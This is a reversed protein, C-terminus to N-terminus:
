RGLLGGLCCPKGRKTTEPIEAQIPPLGDKPYEPTWEAAPLYRDSIDFHDDYLVDRPYVRNGKIIKPNMVSVHALGAIALESCMYQRRNTDTKAFIQERLGSRCRCPTGQLLLRYFPYRKGCQKMGWETLQESQEPTLPCRLRRIYINGHFQGKFQNFRPLADMLFVYPGVTTGDDPGSELVAAGGDPLDVMLGAHDPLDSGVFRYLFKWTPNHDNYCIIDGGRPIYPETHCVYQGDPGPCVTTVYSACPKEPTIGALACLCGALLTLMSEM